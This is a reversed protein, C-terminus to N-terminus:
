TESLNILTLLTYVSNTLKFAKKFTLEFQVATKNKEFDTTDDMYRVIIEGEKHEAVLPGSSVILVIGIIKFFYRLFRPNM